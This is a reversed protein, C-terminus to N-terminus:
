HRASQMTVRCNQNAEPQLSALTRQYLDWAYRLVNIESVWIRKLVENNPLLHTEFHYEDPTRTGAFWSTLYVRGRDDAGSMGRQWNNATMFISETNLTSQKDMMSPSHPQRTPNILPLFQVRYGSEEYAGRLAAQEISEGIDKRGHPFFWYNMKTSYLVVIKQTKQQIIVMGVGVMFDTSCWASPAIGSTSWESLSPVPPPSLPLDEKVEESAEAKTDTQNVSEREAYENDELFSTTRETSSLQQLIKVRYM